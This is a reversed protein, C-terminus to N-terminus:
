ASPRSPEDAAPPMAEQEDRRASDLLRLVEEDSLQHFEQYHMGVARFPEPTALCVVKDAEPALQKLTEAPAVPVALILRHAGARALAKLAARMTGGTAIGDDVVIVSRGLLSPLRRGGRYHQRRRELESLQQKVEQALYAETADCRAVARQDLVVEPQLGEVIAGIGFEPNGPAGLKRVLLLELPAGLRAAVEYGVPVGGRPLALVLPNSLGLKAVAEALQRGAAHRDVFYSVNM